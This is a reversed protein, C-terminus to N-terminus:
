KVKEVTEHSKFQVLAKNEFAFLQIAQIDGGDSVKENSFYLSLIEVKCNDGLQSVRITNTLKALKLKVNRFSANKIKKQRNLADEFPIEGSFDFLVNGCNRKMKIVKLVQDDLDPTVILKIYLDAMEDTCDESLGILILRRPDDIGDINEEDIKENIRQVKEKEKTKTKTKLETKIKESKKKTVQSKSSFPAENLDSDDSTEFSTNSM